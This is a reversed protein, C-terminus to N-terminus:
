REDPREAVTRIRGIERDPDLRRIPEDLGEDGFVAFEAPSGPEALEIPGDDGIQIAVGEDAHVQVRGERGRTLAIEQGDRGALLVFPEGDAPDLEVRTPAPTTTPSQPGSGAPSEAPRTADRVQPALATVVTVAILASVLWLLLRRAQM